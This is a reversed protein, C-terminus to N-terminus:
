AMRVARAFTSIRLSEPLGTGTDPVTVAVPGSVSACSRAAGTGMLPETVAVTESPDPGSVTSPETATELKGAVCGTEPETLTLLKGADVSIALSTPFGTGTEPVTVAVGVPM